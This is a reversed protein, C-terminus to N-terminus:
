IVLTGDRVSFVGDPDEHKHQRLFTYFGDLDKGNFSFVPEGSRIEPVRRAFDPLEVPAAAAAREAGVAAPAAAMVRLAVAGAVAIAACVGVRGCNWLCRRM